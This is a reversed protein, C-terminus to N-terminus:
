ENGEEGFRVYGAICMLVRGLLDQGVLWAAVCLLDHGEDGLLQLVGGDLSDLCAEVGVLM